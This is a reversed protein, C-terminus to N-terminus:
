KKSANFLKEKEEKSLSDYGSQSIKDLIEDIEDQEVRSASKKAPQRSAGTSAKEKRSYTVRINSQKVFFSRFFHIVSLVPKGWDTGRNLQKIFLFGVLAGGLHALEGGANPGTTNAFSLVVYFLAIYKIRVPGIFLLFFTYNPMFTAAGVVVAFVGASAGFLISNEVRDAYFPILNYILIYFLGGAIGGLIYLGIVRNSGLFEKIVMGFWYLFLMNFLIHFFGIHVFMYTFLTWPKILFTETHSPMAIQTLVSRFAEPGLSLDIFVKSIILVIFVVVNILILQIHGNNPRNFANKFDDLIGSGNM